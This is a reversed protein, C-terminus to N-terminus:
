HILWAAASLWLDTKAVAMRAPFSVILMLGGWLTVPHVHKGTRRDHIAMALVFFAISGVLLAPHFVGLLTIAARGIAAPLLGITALMMFRKHADPRARFAFGAAAFVAFLLMAALNMLLVEVRPIGVRVWALEGRQVAASVPGHGRAAAISVLTGTIVMAVMLAVGIWGVKRHLATKRTAVLSVQLVLLLMWATFLAGHIHFLLPFSPTPFLTKLYYTRAFGLLMSVAAAVAMGLFFRDRYRPKQLVTSRPLEIMATGMELHM